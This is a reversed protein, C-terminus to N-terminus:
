PHHCVKSHGINERSDKSWSSVHSFTAAEHITDRPEEATSFSLAWSKILRGKHTTLLAYNVNLRQGVMLYTGFVWSYTTRAESDAEGGFDLSTHAVSSPKWKDQHINSIASHFCLRGLVWVTKTKMEGYGVNVFFWVHNQFSHKGKSLFFHAKNRLLLLQLYRYLGRRFMPVTSEQSGFALRRYAQSRGLFVWLICLTAGTAHKLRNLNETEM